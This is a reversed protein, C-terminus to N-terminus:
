GEALETWMRKMAPTMKSADTNLQDQAAKALRYELIAFVTQANQTLAEEPTCGFTECIVSM